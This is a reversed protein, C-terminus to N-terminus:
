CFSLLLHVAVDPRVNSLILFPLLCPRIFWFCFLITVLSTPVRSSPINRTRPIGRAALKRGQLLIMIETDAMLYTTARTNVNRVPATGTNRACHVGVSRLLQSVTTRAPSAATPVYWTGDGSCAARLRRRAREVTVGADSYVPGQESAGLPRHIRHGAM